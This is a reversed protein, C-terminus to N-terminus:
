SHCDCHTASTFTIGLACVSCETCVVSAPPRFSLLGAFGLLQSCLLPIMGKLSKEVYLAWLCEVALLVLVLDLRKGKLGAEVRLHCM